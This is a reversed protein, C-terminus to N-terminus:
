AKHIHESPPSFFKSEIVSPPKRDDYWFKSFWSEEEKPLKWLLTLEAERMANFYKISIDYKRNAELKIKGKAYGVDNLQWNNIVLTGNIWVQVGDDVRAFFSVTGASPVEIQGTYHVSCYDSVLGTIPPNQDWYFDIKSVKESGVYKEFKIGNYYDAKLQGELVFHIGISLLFVLLHNKKM